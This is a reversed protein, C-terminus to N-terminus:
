GFFERVTAYQTVSGQVALSIGLPVGQNFDYFKFQLFSSCVKNSSV